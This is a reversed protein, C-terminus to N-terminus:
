VADAREGLEARWVLVAQVRRNVLPGEPLELKAFVSRLHADVTRESIVLRHAIGANSLGEALLGLVESERGTLPTPRPHGPEADVVQERDPLLLARSCGVVVVALAAYMAVVLLVVGRGTALAGCLMVLATGALSSLAVGVLRRTAEGTSRLAAYLPVAPGLLVTSLFALNLSMGIREGPGWTLMASAEYPEFDDFFLAFSVAACLGLGIVVFLPWAGLGRGLYRVALLPFVSFAAILPLHGVGALVAFAWALSTNPALASTVSAGALLAPWALSALALALVLRRWRVWGADVAVYTAMAVAAGGLAATLVVYSTGWTDIGVGSAVAVLVVLGLALVGM